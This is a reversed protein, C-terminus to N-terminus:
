IFAIRDYFDNERSAPIEDDILSVEDIELLYNSDISAIVPM